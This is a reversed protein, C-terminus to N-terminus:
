GQEAEGQRRVVNSLGCNKARAGRAGLEMTLAAFLSSGRTGRAYQVRCSPAEGTQRHRTPKPKNWQAPVRATGPSGPVSSPPTFCASRGPRGPARLGPRLLLLGEQSRPLKPGSEKSTSVERKPNLGDQKAMSM